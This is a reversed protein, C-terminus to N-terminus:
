SEEVTGSCRLCLLKDGVNESHESCVDTCCDDCEYIAYGDVNEQGCVDCSLLDEMDTSM